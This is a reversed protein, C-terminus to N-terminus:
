QIPVKPRLTTAWAITVVGSILMRSDVPIEFPFPDAVELKSNQDLAWLLHNTSGLVTSAMFVGAVSARVSRRNTSIAQPDDEFTTVPLDTGYRTRLERLILPDYFRARATEHELEAVSYKM